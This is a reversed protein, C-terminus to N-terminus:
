LLQVEGARPAWRKLVEAGRRVRAETQTFANISAYLAFFRELVSAFLFAGSGQFREEDFDLQVALGRAFGADRGHGVRRLVRQTAVGTLGAIRQRTVPSDAFDYLRLIERIAELAKPQPKPASIGGEAVTVDALSMHNLALHSVLRWRSGPGLPPRIAPTPKRLCRIKSILPKREIELDGAPDGFPLRSPLDRNTCLAHVSLVETDIRTPQARPDVTSLFIDTGSDEATMSPRRALHWYAADGDRAIGHHLGYFPQYTTVRSEGPKISTVQEVSHIEYSARARLDPLM